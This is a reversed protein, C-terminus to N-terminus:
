LIIHICVYIDIWKNWIWHAKTALFNRKAYNATKNVFFFTGLLFLQREYRSVNEM